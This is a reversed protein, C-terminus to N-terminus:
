EREELDCRLCRKAEEKAKRKNYGLEVEAFSGIRQKVPLVPMKPRRKEDAEELPSLEVEPPM